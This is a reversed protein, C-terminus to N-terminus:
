QVYLSLVIPPNLVYLCERGTLRQITSLRSMYSVIKFQQNINSELDDPGDELLGMVRLHKPTSVSLSMVDGVAEHFGPM